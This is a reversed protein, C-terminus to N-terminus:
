FSPAIPHSLLKVIDEAMQICYVFLRVSAVAFVMNVCLM